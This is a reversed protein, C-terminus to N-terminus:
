YALREIRDGLERCFVGYSMIHSASLCQRLAARLESRRVTDYALQVAKGIYQGWTWSLLQDLDLNKMIAYGERSMHQRGVLTIVPVGMWLSELTTTVGNYPYTDLLIDIDNYDEMHDIYRGVFKKMIIREYPIGRGRLNERIMLYQTTSNYKLLITSNPVQKLISSWADFTYGNFKIPNHFAGFVIGDHPRYINLPAEPNPYYCYNINPMRILNECYHDETLGPPDIWYDTIKYDMEPIGSSIHNLWSIQTPALRNNFAMLSNGPNHNALDFLIDIGEKRIASELLLPCDLNYWKDSNEKCIRTFADEYSGTYFSIVEFRARDLHKLIPYIFFFISHRKFDPSVFGVKTKRVDTFDGRM